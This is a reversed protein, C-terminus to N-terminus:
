VCAEKRTKSLWKIYGYVANVLFAGWMVIMTGSGEVGTNLRYSWMLISIIDVLIWYIWQEAYRKAMLVMAIISLVNTCVDLYPTNQGRILSFFSGGILTLIFSVVLWSVLQVPTQRKMKVINRGIENDIKKRWMLWGVLQMPLFYGANLIVEGYLGNQYSLWAYGASNYTGWLYNWINGKATLIVCIIGTFFVSFGFVTDNLLVALVIAILSFTIIWLVEFRSWNVM